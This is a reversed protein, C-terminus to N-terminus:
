EESSLDDNFLDYIFSLMFKWTLMLSYGVPRHSEYMETFLYLNNNELNHCRTNQYKIELMKSSDAAQVKLTFTPPQESMGALM